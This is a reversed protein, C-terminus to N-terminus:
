EVSLHARCLCAQGDSLEKALTPRSSLQLPVCSDSKKRFSFSLLGKKRIAPGLTISLSACQRLIALCIFCTVSARPRVRTKLALKSLALLVLAVEKRPGPM